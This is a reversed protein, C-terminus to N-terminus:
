NYIGWSINCDVEQSESLKPDPHMYIFSLFFPLLYDVRVDESVWLFEIFDCRKPFVSRPSYLAIFWRSHFLLIHRCGEVFSACKPAASFSFRGYFESRLVRWSFAPQLTVTLVCNLVIDQLDRSVISFCLLVSILGSHRCRLGAQPWAAPRLNIPIRLQETSRNFCNCFDSLGATM